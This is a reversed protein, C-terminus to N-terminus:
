AVEKENPLTEVADVSHSIINDEEDLRFTCFVKKGALVEPLWYEDDPWMTKYPVDDYTFWKPVMEESETPEGEWEDCFYAYVHMHAQEGDHFEQFDHEAVQWFHKPTVGIEEQCERILAQEVTEGPEFKGGVGNWRGAGFGRKKMALLVEGNKVLFLLTRRKDNTHNM